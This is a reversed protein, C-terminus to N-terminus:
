ILSLSNSCQSIYELFIARLHYQTVYAINMFFREPFFLFYLIYQNKHSFYVTNHWPKSQSSQMRYNQKGGVWNWGCAGDGGCDQGVRIVDRPGLVMMADQAEVLSLCLFGAPNDDDIVRQIFVLFAEIDGEAHGHPATQAWLEGCSSDCDNRIHFVTLRCNLWWLHSISHSATDPTQAPVLCWPPKIISDMQPM